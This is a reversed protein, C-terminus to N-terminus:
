RLKNISRLNIASAAVMTPDNDINRVNIKITMSNFFIYILGFQYIIGITIKKMTLPQMEPAIM